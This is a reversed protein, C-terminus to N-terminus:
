KTLILKNDRTLRLTYYQEGHAILIQRQNQGFLQRSDIYPGQGPAVLVPISAYPTAPLSTM